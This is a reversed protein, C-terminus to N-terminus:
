ECIEFNPVLERLENCPCKIIHSKLYEESIDFVVEKTLWCDVIVKKYNTIQILKAYSCNGCPIVMGILSRLNQNKNKVNLM